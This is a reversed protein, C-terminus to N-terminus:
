RVPKSEKLAGFLKDAIIGAIGGALAANDVGALKFGAYGFVALLGTNVITYALKKLEFRTIRNDELAKSAWGAVSRLVPAGVLILADSWWAM